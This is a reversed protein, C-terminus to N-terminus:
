AVGQEVSEMLSSVWMRLIALMEERFDQGIKEEQEARPEQNRTNSVGTVTWGPVTEETQVAIGEPMGMSCCEGGKM